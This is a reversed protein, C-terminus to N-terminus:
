SFMFFPRPNVEDGVQLDPYEHGEASGIYYAGHYRGIPAVLELAPHPLSDIDVLCRPETTLIEEGQRYCIGDVDALDRGDEFAKLIELTTVEGEGYVVADLSPCRELVEGKLASPHPGGAIVPADNSDLAIDPMNGASRGEIGIGKMIM